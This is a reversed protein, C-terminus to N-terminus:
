SGAHERLMAPPATTLSYAMCLHIERDGHHRDRGAPQDSALRLRWLRLDLLQPEVVPQRHQHTRNLARPPRGKDDEIVDAAAVVGFPLRAQFSMRPASRCETRDSTISTPMIWEGRARECWRWRKRGATRTTAKLASNIIKCAPRSSPKKESFDIGM